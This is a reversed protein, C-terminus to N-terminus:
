NRRPDLGEDPSKFLQNLVDEASAKTRVNKEGPTAEFQAIALVNGIRGAIDGCIFTAIIEAKDAIAQDSLKTKDNVAYMFLRLGATVVVIALTTMVSLRLKAPIIAENTDLCDKSVTAAEDMVNKSLRRQYIVIMQAFKNLAEPTM